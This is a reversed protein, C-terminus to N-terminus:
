SISEISSYFLPSLLCCKSRYYISSLLQIRHIFHRQTILGILLWELCDATATCSVENYATWCQICDLITYLGIFLLVVDASIFPMYMSEPEGLLARDRSSSILCGNMSQYWHFGVNDREWEYSLPLHSVLVLGEIKRTYTHPLRPGSSHVSQQCNKQSM